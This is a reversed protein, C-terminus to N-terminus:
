FILPILHDNVELAKTLQNNIRQLEGLKQENATQLTEIEDITYDMM